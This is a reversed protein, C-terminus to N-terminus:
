SGVTHRIQGRRRSLNRESVFRPHVSLTKVAFEGFLRRGSTLQAACFSHGRVVRHVGRAFWALVMRM